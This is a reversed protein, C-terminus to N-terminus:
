TPCSAPAARLGVAHRDPGDRDPGRRLDAARRGRRLGRPRGRLVEDAIPYVGARARSRSSCCRRPATTSRARSRTPTTARRGRPLGPVLPAFPAQKARRRRRRCRASVHPRPLRGRARRDRRRPKARKRALKIAGREGRRRLQLLVGQRRALSACLREALRLRRSPTSSTRPTCAAHGAQERVAEVVAPHCHGVSHVRSAPSSTSTSAARPTGSARARAACSSSRAAARLHQM